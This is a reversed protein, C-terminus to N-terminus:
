LPLISAKVVAYTIKACAVGDAKIQFQVRITQNKDYCGEPLQRNAPVPLKATGCTVDAGFGLGTITVIVPGEPKGGLPGFVLENNGTPGCSPDLGQGEPAPSNIDAMCASMSVGTACKLGSYSTVAVSTPKAIPEPGTCDAKCKEGVAVGEAGDCKEPGNKKGDGCFIR